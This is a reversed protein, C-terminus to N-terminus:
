TLSSDTTRCIPNIEIALPRSFNTAVYVKDDKELLAPDIMQNWRFDKNNLVILSYKLYWFNGMWVAYKVLDVLGLDVMNLIQSSNITSALLLKGPSM